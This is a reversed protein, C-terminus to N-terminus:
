STLLFVLAVLLMTMSVVLILILQDKESYFGWNMIVVLWGIVASLLSAILMEHSLDRDVVLIHVARLFVTVSLTFVIFVGARLQAAPTTALSIAILGAAVFVLIAALALRFRRRDRSELLQVM